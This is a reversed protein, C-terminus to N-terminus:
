EQSILELQEIKVWKSARGFDDKFYYKKIRSCQVNMVKICDIGWADKYFGLYVYFDKRYAHKILDGEKFPIEL